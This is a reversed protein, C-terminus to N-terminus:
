IDNNQQHQQRADKPPNSSNHLSTNMASTHRSGSSSLVQVLWNTVSASTNALNLSTRPIEPPTFNQIPPRPTMTRLHPFLSPARTSSGTMFLVKTPNSPPLPIQMGLTQFPAQKPTPMHFQQDKSTPLRTQTPNLALSSDMGLSIDATMRLCSRSTQRSTTRM